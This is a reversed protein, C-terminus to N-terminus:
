RIDAEKETQYIRDFHIIGEQTETKIVATKNERDVELVEAKVPLLVISLVWVTAGKKIFYKGDM